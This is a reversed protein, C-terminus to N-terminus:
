IVNLSYVLLVPSKGTRCTSVSEWPLLGPITMFFGSTGNDFRLRSSSLTGPTGTTTLLKDHLRAKDSEYQKQDDEYQKGLKGSHLIDKVNRLTTRAFTVPFIPSIKM